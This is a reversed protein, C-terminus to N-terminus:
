SIKRLDDVSVSDRLDDILDQPSRSQEVKMSRFLHSDKEDAMYAPGGNSGIAICDGGMRYGSFDEAKEIKGIESPIPVLDTGKAWPRWGSLFSCKYLQEGQEDYVFLVKTTFGHSNFDYGGQVAAIIKFSEGFRKQLLPMLYKTMRTNFFLGNHSLNKM